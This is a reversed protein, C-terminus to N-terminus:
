SQRRERWMETRVVVPAHLTRHVPCKDAIELLKERDESDVDGDIKIRRTFIDVRSAEKEDCTECDPAHDKKHDVGVTIRDAKIGKRDAYMRLTISTCAALAASLYEYPTPGRDDGGFKEPEDAILHHLGRVSVANEYKGQRTERVVVDDTDADPASADARAAPQDIFRGAWAAIVDAAYSANNRNTLLHDANDLSLFSKPHKAAVFLETANDISVLEDVPSHAILIPKKLQRAAAIVSHGALDDLFQKKITFRRGALTVEAAGDREIKPVDSLFNHTVHEASAPAALTVVARVDAIKEAALIAAAGGLSHGVILSPPGLATKMHSAAQILDDVNSSFNTNAFDGESAGLGTFDFRLVGIGLEALRGSIRSAAFVDKSCSFCHAFLAWARPAGAPRDVRAALRDGSAGAFETKEAVM